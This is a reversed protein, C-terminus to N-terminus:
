VVMRCGVDPGTPAPTPTSISAGIKQDPGSNPNRAPLPNQTPTNSVMISASENRCRNALWAELNPPTAPSSMWSQSTPTGSGHRTHGPPSVQQITTPLSACWGQRYQCDCGERCDLPCLLRRWGRQGLLRGSNLSTRDWLSAPAPRSVKAGFQIRDGAMNLSRPHGLKAVQVAGKRIPVTDCSV